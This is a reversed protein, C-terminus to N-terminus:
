RTAVLRLERGSAAAAKDIPLSADKTSSAAHVAGAIAATLSSPDGM